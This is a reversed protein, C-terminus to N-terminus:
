PQPKDPKSKAQTPTSNADPRVGALAEALLHERVREFHPRTAVLDALGLMLMWGVLALLLALYALNLMGDAIWGGLPLLLGVIGIIASGQMRRRFQRRYFDREAEPFDRQSVPLDSVEKLKLDAKTDAYWSEQDPLHDRRNRLHRAIGLIAISVLILSGIPSWPIM